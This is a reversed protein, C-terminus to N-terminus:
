SVSDQDPILNRRNQKKRMHYLQSIDEVPVRKLTHEQHSLAETRVELASAILEENIDIGREPILLITTTGDAIVAQFYQNPALLRVETDCLRMGQRMYDKAVREVESLDFLDVKVVPKEIWVGRERLKFKILVKTDDLRSERM